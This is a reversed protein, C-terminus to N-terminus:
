NLLEPVEDEWHIDLIEVAQDRTIDLVSCAAYYALSLATLAIEHKHGADDVARLIRKMLQLTALREEETAM